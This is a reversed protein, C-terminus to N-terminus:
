VAQKKITIYAALLVSYNALDKISDDIKEDDVLCVGQKIFSNIRSIKDMMRTLFGVEVQAIGCREVVEFNAFVSEEYGAYDHSKSKSINYMSECFQKHYELFEVKNM